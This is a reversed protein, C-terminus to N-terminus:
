EDEADHHMKEAEQDATRVVEAMRAAVQQYAEDKVAAYRKQAHDRQERMDDLARELSQIRRSMQDVFAEVEESDFGKLVRTFQPRPEDDTDTGLIGIGTMSMPVEKRSVSQKPFALWRHSPADSLRVGM